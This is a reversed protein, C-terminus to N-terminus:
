SIIHHTDAIAATEEIEIRSPEFNKSPFKIVVHSGPCQSAHFWLEYPKTHKFTTEDNDAGDRGIFITLGTTLIAPRYPLRVHATKKESSKPLIAAIESQYKETANEFDISLDSQIMEVSDIEGTAIELRRQLL